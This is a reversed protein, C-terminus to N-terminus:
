LKCKSKYGKSKFLHYNVVFIEDTAKSLYIQTVDITGHILMLRLFDKFRVMINVMENGHHWKLQYNLMTNMNACAFDHLVLHM